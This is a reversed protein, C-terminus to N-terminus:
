AAEKQEIMSRAIRVLRESVRPTILHVMASEEEYLVILLGTGGGYFKARWIPKEPKFNAAFPAACMILSFEDSGENGALDPDKLESAEEELSCHLMQRLLSYCTGEPMRHAVLDTATPAATTDNNVM